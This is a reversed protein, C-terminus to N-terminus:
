EDMKSLDSELEVIESQTFACFMQFALSFEENGIKFLITNKVGTQIPQLVSYTEQGDSLVLKVGSMQFNEFIFFQSSDIEPVQFLVKQTGNEMKLSLNKEIPFDSIRLYLKRACTKLVNSIQITTQFEKLHNHLTKEIESSDSTLRFHSEKSKIFMKDCKFSVACEFEATLM